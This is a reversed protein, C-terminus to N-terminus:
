NQPSMSAIFADAEAIAAEMDRVLTGINSELEVATGQLSAVAQANLNHKLFLVQDRFATLVPDMTAEARRMTGILDAYRRETDYLLQESQGRLTPNSYQTLDNKWERFLADAVDEVSAIESRVDAARSESRDLEKSLKDYKSRLESGDVDVVEMFRELATQFQEKAAHQSDRADEVRDVLIESKEYGLKDMTAYYVSQCGTCMLLAFLVCVRAFRPTM